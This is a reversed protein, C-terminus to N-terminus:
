LPVVGTMGTCTGGLIVAYFFWGGFVAGCLFGESWTCIAALWWALRHDGVLLENILHTIGKSLRRM